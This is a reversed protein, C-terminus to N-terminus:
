LLGVEALVQDHFTKVPGEHVLEYEKLIRDMTLAASQLHFRIELVRDIVDAAHFAKAAPAVHDAIMAQVEVARSRLPEALEQLAARRANEIVRDLADGLLVEGTYGSDPMDASHLHHVMGAFFAEAPSADYFPALLAAFVAVVLSHDAHNEEPQLMIRPRGPRTVGARPQAALRAVFDPVATTSEPRGAGLSAKLDAILVADFPAEIEAIARTIITEPKEGAPLNAELFALDIGGLRAATM